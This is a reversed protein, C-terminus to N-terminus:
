GRRLTLSIIEPPNFIRLPFTSNGLGRSVAMATNGSRYIGSTYKPLIGQAPALLGGIFPLRVQGGHAHGAFVLDIGCESYIEILEPRHTLLIKFCPGTDYTIRKLILKINEKADSGDKKISNGLMEPDSLGILAFATEGRYLAAFSNALVTVGADELRARFESYHTSLEEHNGTVFYVPAINVAKSIFAMAADIDCRRRDISDGTIVIIDPHENNVAYVLKAQGDGFVHNHLDSIHAVKFGNIGQANEPLTYDARTVSLSDNGIYAYARRHLANRCTKSDSKMYFM